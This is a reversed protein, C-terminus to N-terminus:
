EANRKRRRPSGLLKELYAIRKRYAQVEKRCKEREALLKRLAPLEAGSVHRNVVRDDERYVLYHYNYQRGQQVKKRINLAGKPFATLKKELASFAALYRELEEQLLGQVVEDREVVVM